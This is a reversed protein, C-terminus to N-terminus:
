SAALIRRIRGIAEEIQADDLTAYSFALGRMVPRDAAYMDLSHLAVGADLAQKLVAKADIGPRLTAALHLGAVGPLPTLYESCSELARLLTARRRAYIKRMRKVHRALHGETIFAALTEQDIANCDSIQRASVLAGHVWQPAIVFGLRLAPFLSKSFTGIFFVRGERDLTQLADLPRGDFRFEGDFDDEVILANREAAFRLIAARRRPSMPVGSLCQHSPTVYIISVDPRLRDVILGEADVPTPAVTAGAAAFAARAPPYGPDEVAVVTKDRTVLVRALLDFAHQAGRTVVIDQPGCAVARTFSVHGAIATRLAPSGAFDQYTIRKRSFERLTRDSLRRWVEFPFLTTDPFGPRFDLEIKQDLNGAFIATPWPDPADRWASNIHDSRLKEEDQRDTPKKRAIGDAVFIGAGPRSVIYGEGLLLDYIGVVTNRSVGLSQAFARSAPLQVGPALRGDLIASRVQNHLERRLRRSARAPLDLALEFPANMRGAYLM